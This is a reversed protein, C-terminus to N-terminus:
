PDVVIEYVPINIMNGSINVWKNGMHATMFLHGPGFGGLGVLAVKPNSPHVAIATFVRDPPLPPKTVNRWAPSDSQLNDPNVYVLPDTTVIYAVDVSSMSIGIGTVYGNSLTKSIPAWGAGPCEPVTPGRWIRNTGLLINSVGPTSSRTIQYPTYFAGVEDITRSDM